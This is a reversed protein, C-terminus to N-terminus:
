QTWDATTGSKINIWYARGQNFTTLPEVPAPLTQMSEKIGYWNGKIWGWLFSWEGAITASGDNVIQDEAGTYGVLNWGTYLHIPNGPAAGWGTMDIDGAAQMYIWYGKGTELTTLSLAQDGPQWKKWAKRENDYGWVIKVKNPLVPTLVTAIATNQPV